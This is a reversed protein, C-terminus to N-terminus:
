VTKKNFQNISYWFYKRLEVAMNELPVVDNAMNIKIVAEPM